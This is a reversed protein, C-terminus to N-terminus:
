HVGKPRQASSCGNSDCGSAVKCGHRADRRGVANHDGHVEVVVRRWVEVSAVALVLCTETRVTLQDVAAKRPAGLDSASCARTRSHTSTCRGSSSASQSSARWPRDSTLMSGSGHASRMRDSLDLVQAIVPQPEGEGVAQHGVHVERLLKSTNPWVPCVSTPGTNLGGRMSRSDCRVSKM